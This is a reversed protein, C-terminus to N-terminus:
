FHLIWQVLQVICMCIYSVWVYLLQSKVVCMTYTPVFFHAPDLKMKNIHNTIQVFVRRGKDFIIVFSFPPQFNKKKKKFKKRESWKKNTQTCAIQHHYYGVVVVVVVPDDKGDHYRTHFINKNFNVKKEAHTKTTQRTEKKKETCADFFRISFEQGFLFFIKLCSAPNYILIWEIFVISLSSFFSILILIM